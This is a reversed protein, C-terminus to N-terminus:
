VLNEKIIDLIKVDNIMICEIKTRCLACCPLNSPNCKKLTQSLCSGCFNHNCNLSVMNVHSIEEYCISCDEQLTSSELCLIPLIDFKRNEDSQNRNNRLELLYEVAIEITVSDPLDPLSIFDSSQTQNNGWIDQNVNWIQRIIKTACIEITNRAYAGCFRMAYSKVIKQNQGLLWTEFYSIQNNFDISHIERLVDRKSILNEQFNLLRENDCNTINHAFSKCFSCRRTLQRTANIFSNENNQQNIM